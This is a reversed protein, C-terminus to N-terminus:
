YELEGEEYRIDGWGRWRGEYMYMGGGGGEGERMCMGMHM